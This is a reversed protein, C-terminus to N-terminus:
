EHNFLSLFSTPPAIPKMTEQSVFVLTTSAKILLENKENLIRYEFFIRSGEIRTICTEITLLDDYKAPRIYKIQLDLVPLMVGENEMSKYSSGLSRLAEVRGVELYSAYNGYYCYGMQDTEGYRVRIQYPFCYNIEM